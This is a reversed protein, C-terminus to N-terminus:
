VNVKITVTAIYGIRCVAQPQCAVSAIYSTPQPNQSLSNNLISQLKTKLQVATDSKGRKAEVIALYLRLPGCFIRISETMMDSFGDQLNNTGVWGRIDAIRKEYAENVEYYSSYTFVNATIIEQKDIFPLYTWTATVEWNGAPASLYPQYWYKQMDLAM